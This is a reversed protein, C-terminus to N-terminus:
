RKVFRRAVRTGAPGEVSIMYLGSALDSVEVTVSTAGARVTRLSRGDSSRVHLLAGPADVQVMLQDDVPNPWMRFAEGGIAVIDTSEDVTFIAPATIVPANFDFYINAVNQIQAGNLLTNVPRMRFRVYGHSNPEDSTSDPLNIPDMVFHLVGHQIFWETTHSSGVLDMTNWLLDNSLTDTIIVRDAAFTGTNQFRITYELAGGAQVQAPTMTGPVVQKDNPDVAGVVLGTWAVTNDMPTTDQTSPVATITHALPTGIPVAADTNLTVVIGWSGGSAITPSWTANNGVQTDPVIGSGVWTQANDFTLNLMAVTNETGINEVTVYVNNDFGPRAPMTTLHAVLDYIGPVAQYGIHNLSDIQSAILTINAPATTITHYVVDQGNMTFTGIDIPLVYNGAADPATLYSGPQAEIVANTFAVEGMDKVGDGNADNFVTGTIAEGGLSCPSLVNCVTLPFPLQSNIANYSAPINPLCTVNTSMCHLASVSNPLLPLCDIPNDSCLLYQLSSPLAPLATIQNQNCNLLSMASPLTPVNTLQNNFCYLTTLSDPLAPLALLDNNAAYLIRLSDPLIPLVGIPNNECELTHMANPLAPLGGLTNNYCVLYRLSAPLAPLATLQNQSCHLIELAAPLAPLASLDNGDCNMQVLAPPLTPLAPLANDNCSLLLSGAPLAPLDTLGCNDCNLETLGAPLAPLIGMLPNNRCLLRELSAPLAPLGTLANDSCAIQTISSPLAPLSTLQNDYCTLMDLAPPLTPLSTLQNEMCELHILSAPLSTFSVLDNGGCWLVQIADPLAPMTTLYNGACQLSQLGTFYQIGDLDEIWANAINMSTLGQVSPDSTDLVDGTMASPVIASLRAAFASDPVTFQANATCGVALLFAIYLSRKMSLAINHTASSVNLTRTRNCPSPGKRAAFDNFHDIQM